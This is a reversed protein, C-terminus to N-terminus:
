LWTGRWNEVVEAYGVAILKQALENRSLSHLRIKPLNEVLWDRMDWSGSYAMGAGMWDAIMEDLYLGPMIHAGNEVRSGPVSYGDPSLWHQWHHPNVHCHHLWAEAFGDPNTRNPFHTAYGCFEIESFKSQDHVELLAPWANVKKGAERVFRIHDCVLRLYQFAPGQDVGYYGADSVIRVMEGLDM